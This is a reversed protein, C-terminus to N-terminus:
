EQRFVPNGNFSLDLTGKLGKKMIDKEMIAKSILLKNDINETSGIKINIDFETKITISLLNSMDVENIIGFLDSSTISNLIIKMDNLQRLNLLDVAKGPVVNKIDLGHILPLNVSDKKDLIEIVVGNKDITIYKNEFVAIGTGNREKIILYVDGFISRKVEVAEIYPNVLVNDMIRQTNLKLLNDDMKIESLEIIIDKSVINNGNVNIAKVKFVPTTFLIIILTSLIILFLFIEFRIRRRKIRKQIDLYSINIGGM